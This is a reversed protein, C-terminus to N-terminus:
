LWAANHLYLKIKYLILWLAKNPLVKFKLINIDNIDSNNEKTLEYTITHSRFNEGSFTLAIEYKGPQMTSKLGDQVAHYSELFIKNDNDLALALDLYETEGIGINLRELGLPNHVSEPKNAWRLTFGVYNNLDCGLESKVYKIKCRCKEATCKRSKNTVGLRLFCGNTFGNKEIMQNILADVMPKNATKEDIFLSTCVGLSVDYDPYLIENNGNRIFSSDFYPSQDKKESNPISRKTKYIDSDNSYKFELIPKYLFSWSRFAFDLFAVLSTLILLWIDLKLGFIVIPEM